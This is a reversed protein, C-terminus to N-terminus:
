KGKPVVTGRIKVRVKSPSGNTRVTVVKDFGGPRGLPNYTVKIKGRKGPAVPEKPFEPRTCGCEAKAEYIILNGKGTNTFVFECSVPGGNEKVMGFDHVTEAFKMRAKESAEAAFAVFAMIFAVALLMLRSRNKMNLM